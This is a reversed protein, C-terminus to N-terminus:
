SSGYGDELMTLRRNERERKRKGEGSTNERIERERKIWEQDTFSNRRETLQCLRTFNM